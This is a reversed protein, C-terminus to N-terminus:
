IYGLESVGKNSLVPLDTFWEWGWNKSSELSILGYNQGIVLYVYKKKEVHQSCGDSLSIYVPSTM